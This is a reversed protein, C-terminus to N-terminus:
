MTLLSMPGLLPVEAKNFHLLLISLTFQTIDKILNTDLMQNKRFMCYPTLLIASSQIVQKRIFTGLPLM